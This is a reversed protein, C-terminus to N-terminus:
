PSNRSLRSDSSAASNTSVLYGACADKPTYYRLIRKLTWGQVLGSMGSATGAPAAQGSSRASRLTWNYPHSKRLRVQCPGHSNSKAPALGWRRVSDRAFAEPGDHTPGTVQETGPSGAQRNKTTM